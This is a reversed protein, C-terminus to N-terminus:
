KKRILAFVDKNKDDDVPVIAIRFIMRDPKVVGAGGSWSKDIVHRALMCNNFLAGGHWGKRVSFEGDVASIFFETKGYNVGSRIDVNKFVKKRADYLKLHEVAIRSLAIMGSSRFCITPVGRERGSVFDDKHLKEIEM